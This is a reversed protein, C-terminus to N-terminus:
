FELKDVKKEEILKVKGRIKNPVNRACIDLKSSFVKYCEIHFVTYSINIKM